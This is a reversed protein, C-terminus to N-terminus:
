GLTIRLVILFPTAAVAILVGIILTAALVRGATRADAAIGSM